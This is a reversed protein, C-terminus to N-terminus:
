SYKVVTYQLCISSSCWVTVFGTEILDIKKPKGALFGYPALFLGM